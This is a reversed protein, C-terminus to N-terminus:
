KMLVGGEEERAVLQENETKLLSKKKNTEKEKNM